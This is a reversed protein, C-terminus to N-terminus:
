DGQDNRSDTTGWEAWQDANKWWDMEWSNEDWCPGWPKTDLNEVKWESEEENKPWLEEFKWREVVEMGCFQHKLSYCKRCIYYEIFEDVVDPHCCKLMGVPRRNGAKPTYCCPTDCTEPAKAKYDIDENIKPPNWIEFRHDITTPRTLLSSNYFSSIPIVHVPIPGYTCLNDENLHHPLAIHQSPTIINQTHTNSM